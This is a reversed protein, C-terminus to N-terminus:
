EEEEKIKNKEKKCNFINQAQGMTHQGIILSKNREFEIGSM